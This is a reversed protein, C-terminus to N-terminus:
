FKPKTHTKLDLENIAKRVSDKFRDNRDRYEKKEIQIKFQEVADKRIEEKNANVDAHLHGVIAYLASIAGLIGGWRKLFAARNSPTRKNRQEMASHITRLWFEM